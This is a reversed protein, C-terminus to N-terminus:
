SGAPFRRGPSLRRTPRALAEWEDGDIRELLLVEGRPQEIPIRGQVVRSDNVVTLTRPPLEGPLERVTAHRVAGTARDFVLMRSGDRRDLPQQAILEPPLDYDLESADM